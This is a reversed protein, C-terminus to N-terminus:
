RAGDCIFSSDLPTLLTTLRTVFRPSCFGSSVTVDSSTLVFYVANADPAAQNGGIAADVVAAIESDSLSPGAIYPDSLPLEGGFNVAGSISSGSVSYARNINFHASGGITGLLDRIIQQGSPTDTSNGQNWDGYWIVYAKPTGAM